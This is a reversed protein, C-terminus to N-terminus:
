SRLAERTLLDCLWREIDYLRGAQWGGRAVVTEMISDLAESHSVYGAAVFPAIRRAMLSLPAPRSQTPM